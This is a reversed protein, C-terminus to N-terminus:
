KLAFAYARPAGDTAEDTHLSGRRPGDRGHVGDRRRIGDYSLVTRM